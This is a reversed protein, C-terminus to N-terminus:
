RAVAELMSVHMLYIVAVVAAGTLANRMLVGPSPPGARRLEKERIMEELCNGPRRGLMFSWVSAAVVAAIGAYGAWGAPPYIGALSIWTAIIAVIAGGAALRFPRMEGRLRGSRWLLWASLGLFVSFAPFMYAHGALGGAGVAGLVALLSPVGACVFWAFTAVAVSGSERVLNLM